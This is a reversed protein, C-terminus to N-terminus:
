FQYDFESSPAGDGMPRVEWSVEVGWIGGDSQVNYCQPAKSLCIYETGQFGETLGGKFVVDVSGEPQIMLTTTDWGDGFSDFMVLRYKAEDENCKTEAPDPKNKNKSSNADSPCKTTLTVDCSDSAPDKCAYGDHGCEMYSSDSTIKCTDDCCDGGDYDCIETNYCGEMNDHCVGDGLWNTHMGEWKCETLASCDIKNDNADDDDDVIDDDDWIVCGTFARCFVSAAIRDGQLSKCQGADLLFTLVDECAIGPVVGAWDIDATAMDEFCGTCKANPLCQVFAADCSENGDKMFQMARQAQSEAQNQDQDHDQDDRIATLLRHINERNELFRDANSALTKTISLDAASRTAEAGSAILATATVLLLARQRLLFQM